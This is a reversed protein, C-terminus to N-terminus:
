EDATMLYRAMHEAHPEIVELDPTLTHPSVGQPDIIWRVLRAGPNGSRVGKEIEVRSVAVIAFEAAVFLANLALLLAVILVTTM